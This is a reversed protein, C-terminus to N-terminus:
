LKDRAPNSNWIKQMPPTITDFAKGITIDAYTKGNIVLEYPAKGTASDLVLM